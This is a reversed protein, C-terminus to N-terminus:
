EHSEGYDKTLVELRRLKYATMDRYQNIAQELLDLEVLRAHFILQRLQSTLEVCEPDTAMFHSTAITIAQEDLTLPKSM